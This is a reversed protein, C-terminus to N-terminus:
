KPNPEAKPAGPIQHGLGAKSAERTRKDPRKAGRRAKPGTRRAEAGGKVDSKADPASATAAARAQPKTDSGEM